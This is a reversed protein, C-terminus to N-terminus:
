HSLASSKRRRFNEISQDRLMYDEDGANYRRRVVRRISVRRSREAIYPWVDSERDFVVTGQKATPERGDEAPQDLSVEYQIQLRREDKQQDTLLELAARRDDPELSELWADTQRERDKANRRITADIQRLRQDREARRVPEDREYYKKRYVARKARMMRREEITWNARITKMTEALQEQRAKMRAAADESPQRGPAGQCNRNWCTERIATKAIKFKRGCCSCVRTEAEPNKYHGVKYRATPSVLQGCGCLCTRVMGGTARAGHSGSGLHAKKHRKLGGRSQPATETSM